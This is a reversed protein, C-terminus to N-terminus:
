GQFKYINISTYYIKLQDGNIRTPLADGNLTALQISGNSFAELV